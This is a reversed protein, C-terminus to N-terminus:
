PDFIRDIIEEEIGGANDTITVVIRGNEASSRVTVRADPAGRQLITDRANMLINLIVQGLENPYGDCQPHGTSSVEMAIHQDRFNDAVFSVAKAVIQEVEFLRKGRDPASFIRFDDITKSLQYIIEMCKAVNADLSEKSVEKTLRLEQLTLGVVNLPQRWHHAINSLLEGMAAVRCQQILIHDSERLKEMAKVREATERELDHYTKLLEEHQAALEARKLELERTREAVRTELEENSRKLANEAERLQALAGELERVKEELKATVMEDYKRLFNKEEEMPETHQSPEKGAALRELVAAIASWLEEPEKPKVIFTEAGLSRALEEEQYGTYIASYFIFPTSKLAPDLKLMRLLQFGDTRPMLADSIILDPRHQQAMAFGEQGDGAEWITDFGHPELIYRLLRRDSQNDDVILLKM